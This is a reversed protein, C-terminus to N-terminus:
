IPNMGVEATTATCREQLTKSTTTVETGESKGGEHGGSLTQIWLMWDVDVFNM